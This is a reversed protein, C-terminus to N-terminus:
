QENEELEECSIYLGDIKYNKELYKVLEEDRTFQVNLRETVCADGLDKYIKSITIKYIKNERNLKEQIGKPAYIGYCDSCYVYDTTNCNDCHYMYMPPLSAYVVSTDIEVRKGCKKCHYYTKNTEIM